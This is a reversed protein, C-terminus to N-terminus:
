SVPKYSLEERGAHLEVVDDEIIHAPEQKDMLVDETLPTKRAEAEPTHEHPFGGPNLSVNQCWTDM